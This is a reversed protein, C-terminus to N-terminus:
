GGVKSTDPIEANRPFSNGSQWRLSGHLKGDKLLRRIQSIRLYRGQSVEEATLRAERYADYLERAGAKATWEPRFGPLVRGIKDFSIRYCRKDPGGGPAYEVRSGPVIEAVIAALESDRRLTM